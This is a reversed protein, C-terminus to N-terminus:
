PRGWTAGQIAPMIKVRLMLCTEPVGVDTVLEWGRGCAWGVVSWQGSVVSLKRGANYSHWAQAIRNAVPLLAAQYRVQM